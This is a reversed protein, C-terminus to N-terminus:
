HGCKQNRELSQQFIRQSDKGQGNIIFLDNEKRLVQGERSMDERYWKDWGISELYNM